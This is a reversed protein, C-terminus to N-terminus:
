KDRPAPMVERIREAFRDVLARSIHLKNTMHMAEAVTLADGPELQGARVLEIMLELGWMVPLQERQLAHRLAGDNTVCTWGREKAVILCLHDEFSLPGHREAAAVVQALAPEVVHLGLRECEDEDLQEVEALIPSLVEVQGLHRAALALISREAKAYDILVNADVLLYTGGLVM